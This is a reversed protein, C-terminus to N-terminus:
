IRTYSFALIAISRKFPIHLLFEGPTKLNGGKYVVFRAEHPGVCPGARQARCLSMAMHFGRPFLRCPGQAFGM